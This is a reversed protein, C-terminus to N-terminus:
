YTEHTSMWVSTAVTEAEKSAWMLVLSEVFSWRCATLTRWTPLFGVIDCWSSRFNVGLEKDPHNKLWYSRILPQSHADDWTKIKELSPKSARWRCQPISLSIVPCPAPWSPWQPKLSATEESLMSDRVQPACDLLPMLQLVAVRLETKIGSLEWRLPFSNQSAKLRSLALFPRSESHSHSSPQVMCWSYFRLATNGLLPVISATGLVARQQVPSDWVSYSM